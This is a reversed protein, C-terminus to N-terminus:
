ALHSGDDLPSVRTQNKNRSGRRHESSERTSEDLFDYPSTTPGGDDPIPQTIDSACESLKLGFPVWSFGGLCWHFRGRRLRPPM